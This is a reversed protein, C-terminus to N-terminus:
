KEIKLIASFYKMDIPDMYKMMSTLDKIKEKSLGGDYILKSVEPLANNVMSTRTSKSEKVLSIRQLSESHGTKYSLVLLNTQEYKIYRVQQYPVINAFRNSAINYNHFDIGQMQHIDLSVNPYTCQKLLKLLAVPSYIEVNKLHHDIVSHVADIEQVQSHGPESYKHEICKINPHNEMFKLIALTTIRNRNQPVCADSWLIIKSLNKNESTVRELINVLASAIDNGSRGGLTEPWIACYTKKNRNCHGTLNYVNLKRKYFFNSIEARPLSFVNQLDYCIVATDADNNSRDLNREARASLNQQEHKTLKAKEASTITSSKNKMEACLDCQDKKPKYFSLNFNTNFIERYLHSKVPTADGCSEKYLRYMKSISLSGDLYKMNTSSRCYHSDIVPFKNIHDKVKQKASNNICKKIHKGQKPSNSVGTESNHNNKFYYYVRSKSIDLTKLFFERCVRHKVGHNEFYYKYSYLKKLNKDKNVRKSNTRRIFKSYYALKKKDSLKWFHKNINQRFDNDFIEKCSFTCNKLCGEARTSKERKVTGKASIYEKGSQRLKKRKNQKWEDNNIKRKRVLNKKGVIDETSNAIQSKSISPGANSNGDLIITDENYVFNETETSQGNVSAAKLNGYASTGIPLSLIMDSSQIVTSNLVCGNDTPDTLNLKKQKSNIIGSFNLSRKAQPTQSTRRRKSKIIIYPTEEESGSDDCKTLTFDPDADSDDFPSDNNVDM